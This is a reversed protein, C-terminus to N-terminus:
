AARAPAVDLRVIWNALDDSPAEYRQLVLPDHGPIVHDADAVLNEILDYGDLLELTDHLVPFPNREAFNAYYHAADSALFVGGRRTQVEVGQTGATHGGLLHGTLGPAVPATGDHFTVRRNRALTIMDALDGADYAHSIFSHRMAPGTAYRMEREQVHFRASTFLATGGAHDNHFHTLVVDSVSGPDIDLQALGDRVPHLPTRGRPAADEPAFGTDIVITREANRAVWVFYDMTASGPHRPPRIFNDRANRGICAYRIAFLEYQDM